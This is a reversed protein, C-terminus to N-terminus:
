KATNLKYGLRKISQILNKDTRKRLRYLLARLSLESINLKNLISEKSVPNPLNNALMMILDYESKTLDLENGYYFLRGSRKNFIYNNILKIEINEKKSNRYNNKIRNKALELTAMIENPRYPKLLYAFAHSEVAYEVMEKESYATMFIILIDDKLVSIRLAAEAGSIAGKIMIDMFVIDIDYTHIADIADKESDVIAAVKFSEDSEIISKLYEASIPEDEVILVNISM